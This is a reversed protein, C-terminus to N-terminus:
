ISLINAKNFLELIKKYDSMHTIDDGIGNSIDMLRKILYHSENLSQMWEPIDLRVMQIPFEMLAKEMIDSLDNDTMHIVDLPM